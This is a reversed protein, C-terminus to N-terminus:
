GTQRCLGSAARRRRIAVSGQGDLSANAIQESAHRQLLLNALEIEIVAILGKLRPKGLFALPCRRARFDEGFCARFLEKASEAGTGYVVHLSGCAQIVPHLAPQNVM